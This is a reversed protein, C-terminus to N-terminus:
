EYCATRARDAYEAAEQHWEQTEIPDGAYVGSSASRTRLQYKGATHLYTKYEKRASGAAEDLDKYEHYRRSFDSDLPPGHRSKTPEVSDRYYDKTSDGPASGQSRGANYPSPFGTENKDEFPELRILDRLALIPGNQLEGSM